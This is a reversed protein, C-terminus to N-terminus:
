RSIGPNRRTPASGEIRSPGVFRSGGKVEDISGAEGGGTQTRDGGFRERIAARQEADKRADYGQARAVTNRADGVESEKYRRVVQRNAEMAQRAAFSEVSTSGIREGRGARAYGSSHIAEEKKVKMMHELLPNKDAAGNM